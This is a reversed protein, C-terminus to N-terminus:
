VRIWTGAREGALDDLDRELLEQASIRTIHIASRM